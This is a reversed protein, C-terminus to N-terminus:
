PAPDSESAPALRSPSVLTVTAGHHPRQALTGSIGVGAPAPVPLLGLSWPGNGKLLHRARTRGLAKAGGSATLRLSAQAGNKALRLVFSEVGGHEFFVERRCLARVGAELYLQYFRLSPTDFRLDWARGKHDLPRLQGGFSGVDTQMRFSGNPFVIFVLMSPDDFKECEKGIALKEDFAILGSGVPFPQAHAASVALLVLLALAALRM